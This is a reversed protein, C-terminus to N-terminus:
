KLLEQANGGLVLSRDRENMPLTSIKELEVQVSSYPAWSGFLFRAAGLLATVGTLIMDPDILSTELWVNGCSQAAPTADYWFDSYGMHGMIFRGQPHRQALAILQFPEACIPTGTHAYVTAGHDIAAEVLRDVSPNSLQFGQVPPYLFLVKLGAGLARRLEEVARDGFWPNAVACGVFRDPHARVLGAVFDNGERNDVAFFSDTPAIWSVAVGGADMERLADEPRRSEELRGNGVRSCADIVDSM